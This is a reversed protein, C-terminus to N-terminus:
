ALEDLAQLVEDPHTKPSVKPFVRRVIGDKDIIVTTRLIGAFTRGMFSKQGWSGYSSIVEADPDALLPFNLSQKDKFGRHTRVSDRSVGLVVADRKDLEAKADRFGQAEITCGPTNDKPYFYLVVNKEGRFDSLSVTSGDDAQLSFDPAPTGLEPADKEVIKSEVAETAKSVARKAASKAKAVTKKATKEARSV